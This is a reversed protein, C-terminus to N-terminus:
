PGSRRAVEFPLEARGVEDGNTEQAQMTYRFFGPGLTQAPVVDRVQACGPGELELALPAYDVSSAGEIRREVRLAANRPRGCVLSVLAIPVDGSVPEDQVLAVPGAASPQEGRLIIGRSPQLLLAPMVVVRRSKPDPWSMELFATASEGSGSDKTLALVEFPGPRVRLRTELVLPGSAADWAQPQSVEHVFAGGAAVQFRLSRAAGADLTSRATIQLLVDFAGDGFGLPIMRADLRLSRRAAPDEFATALLESEMQAVQGPIVMRARVRATLGEKELVLRVSLLRDEPLGEPAFSLRYLCSLDRHLRETMTAAELGNLFAEGGTDLGLAALTDQAHSGRTSPAVLGQAEIPYVRIGLTAAEHQVAEFGGITDALDLPISFRGAFSVASFLPTESDQRLAAKASDSALLRSGARNRYHVGANRRLTDGFYLAIRPPEAGALRALAMRLRLLSLDAREAEEAAPGAAMGQTHNALTAATVGSMQEVTWLTGLADDGLLGAMTRRFLRPQEDADGVASDLETLRWHERSPEPDHQGADRELRDLARLLQERDSTFGTYFTVGRRAGSAILARDGARLLVPIMARATELSHERGESTLQMQDFYLLYAAPLRVGPKVGASECSRDVVIDRIWRGGVFLKFDSAQLAGTEGPPGLVSVDLQVLRVEVKDELVVQAQGEGEQGPVPWASFAALLTIVGLVRRPVHTSDM